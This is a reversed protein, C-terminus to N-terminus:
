QRAQRWRYGVLGLLGTGLLLMTGPVPVVSGITHQGSRGVFISAGGLVNVAETSGASGCGGLDGSDLCWFTDPSVQIDFLLFSNQDFDYTLMTPSASLGNGFLDLRNTDAEPGSITDTFSGDFITLEWDLIDSEQLVGFDGNTEIFGMVSGAGVPRDVSYMLAHAPVTTSVLGVMLLLFYSARLIVKVM